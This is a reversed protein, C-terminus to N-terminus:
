FLFIFLIYLTKTHRHHIVHQKLKIVFTPTGYEQRILSMLTTKNLINASVDKPTNIETIRILIFLYIRTYYSCNHLIDNSHCILYLM